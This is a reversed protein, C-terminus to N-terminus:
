KPWAKLNRDELEDAPYSYLRYHELSVDWGLWFLWDEAIRPSNEVLWARCDSCCELLHGCHCITSSNPYIRHDISM